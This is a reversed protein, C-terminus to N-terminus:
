FINNSFPFKKTVKSRIVQDRKTKEHYSIVQELPEVDSFGLKSNNLKDAPANISIFANGTKNGAACFCVSDCGTLNKSGVFEQV